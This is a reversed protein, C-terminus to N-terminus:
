VHRIYKNNHSIFFISVNKVIQIYLYKKTAEKKWPLTYLIIHSIIFFLCILNYYIVLNKNIETEHKSVYM